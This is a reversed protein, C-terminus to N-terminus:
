ENESLVEKMWRYPMDGKKIKEEFEKRITCSLDLGNHIKNVCRDLCAKEGPHYPISDEGYHTICRRMCYNFGENSILQQREALVVVDRQAMGALQPNTQPPQM